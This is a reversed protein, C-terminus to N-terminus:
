GSGDRPRGARRRTYERGHDARNAEEGHGSHGHAGGKGEDAALVVGRDRGLGLGVRSRRSRGLPVAGDRAGVVRRCGRSAVRALERAAREGVLREAGAHRRALVDRDLRDDDQHLLVAREIVVESVESLVGPAGVHLRRGLVRRVGVRGAAVCGHCRASCM